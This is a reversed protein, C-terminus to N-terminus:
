PSFQYLSLNFNLGNLIRVKITQNIARAVLIIIM